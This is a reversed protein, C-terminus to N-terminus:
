YRINIGSFSLIDRIIIKEAKSQWKYRSLEFLFIGIWKEATCLKSLIFLTVWRNEILPSKEEGEAHAHVHTHTHPICAWQFKVGNHFIHIWNILFPIKQESASLWLFENGWISSMNGISHIKWEIM